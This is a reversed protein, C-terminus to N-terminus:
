INNEDSSLYTFAINAGNEAFRRIIAAGIGRSGGTVLAVRSM